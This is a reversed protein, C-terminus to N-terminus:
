VRVCEDPEREFPDDDHQQGGDQGGAGPAEQRPHDPRREAQQHHHLEEVEAEEGREVTREVRDVVPAVGGDPDLRHAVGEAARIGVQHGGAGHEEADGREDQGRQRHEASVRTAARWRRSSAGPARPARRRRPPRDPREAGCSTEPVFTADVLPASRATWSTRATCDPGGRGLSAEVGLDPM